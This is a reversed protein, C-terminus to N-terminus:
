EPSMKIPYTVTTRESTAPFRLKNAATLMCQEFPADRLGDEGEGKLDEVAGDPRIAFKLSITGGATPSKALLAEYCARFSKFEARVVAQIETSMLKSAVPVVVKAAPLSTMNSLTEEVSALQAARPAAILVIPPAGKRERAALLGEGRELHAVIEASPIPLAADYRSPVRNSELDFYHVVLSSSLRGRSAPIGLWSSLSSSSTHTNRKDDCLPCEDSRLDRLARDIAFTGLHESKEDRFGFTLISIEVQGDRDVPFYKALV